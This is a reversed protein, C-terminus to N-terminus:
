SLEILNISYTKKNNVGIFAGTFAIIPALYHSWIRFFVAKRRIGYLIDFFVIILLVSILKLDPLVSLSLLFLFYYVFGFFVGKNKYYLLDFVGKTNSLLNKRFVRGFYRPSWFLKNIRKLDQYPVTHHTGMLINLALMKYKETIRLTFDYDQNRVLSEDFIGISEVVERKTFFIGGSSYVRKIKTIGYRDAVTTVLKEYYRDYQCEALQGVVADADNFRIVKIATVIFNETIEVDGDIFFIFEKTARNIGANRAIASNAYGEIQLLSLNQLKDKFGKILDLTSDTSGSDVCIIECNELKFKSISDLCKKIGFEENKTVIIFSIGNISNM